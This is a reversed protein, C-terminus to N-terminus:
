IITCQVENGGYHENICKKIGELTDFYCDVYEQMSMGDTNQKSMYLVTLLDEIKISKRSDESM